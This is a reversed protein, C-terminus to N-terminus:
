HAGRFDFHSPTELPVRFDEWSRSIVKRSFSSVDDDDNELICTDSNIVFGPFRSREIRAGLITIIKDIRRTFKAHLPEWATLQRKHGYKDMLQILRRASCHSSTIIDDFEHIRAFIFVRAGTAAALLDSFDECISPSVDSWVDCPEFEKFRCHPTVKFQM